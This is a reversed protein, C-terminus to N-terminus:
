APSMGNKLSKVAQVIGRYDIVGMVGVYSIVGAGTLLLLMPFQHLDLPELWTRSFVVFLFMAVSALFPKWISNLYSLVSLNLVRSSIALQIFFSLAFASGVGYAVGILGWKAGIVIGTAVLALNIIRFYLNFKPKGVGRVAPDLSLGLMQLAGLPALIAMPEIAALWNEGLVVAVLEPSVSAIGLFLPFAVMAIMNASKVVYRVVDDPNSQARSFGAFALPNVIGAIKRMPMWAFDKAVFFVGTPDKDLLKGVILSDGQLVMSEVFEDLTDFLGFRVADGMGKFNFDPLIWYRTVYLFGILQVFTAAINCYVLAWVGFGNYALGLSLFGGAATGIFMVIGLRRFDMQRILKVRMMIYMPYMVHNLALVQIITELAPEDYIEAMLPALSLLLVFFFANSLIVTAFINKELEPQLNKRQILAGSMGIANIASLVGALGAAIALLGYDAPTLIRIVLLTIVWNLIQAGFRTLASWKLGVFLQKTLSM